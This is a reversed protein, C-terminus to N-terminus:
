HSVKLCMSLMGLSFIFPQSKTRCVCVLVCVCSFPLSILCLVFGLFGVTKGVLDWLGLSTLLVCVGVNKGLGVVRSEWPGQSSYSAVSLWIAPM